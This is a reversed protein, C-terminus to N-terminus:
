AIKSIREWEARYKPDLIIEGKSFPVSLLNDKQYGAQIIMKKVVESKTVYTLGNRYVFCFIGNKENYKGIKELDSSNDTLVPPLSYEKLHYEVHVNHNPMVFCSFIFTPDIEQIGKSDSYKLCKHYFSSVRSIKANECLVTWHDYEQEPYHVGDFPCTYYGDHFGNEELTKIVGDIKPICYIKRDIVFTVINGNISYTFDKMEDTDFAPLKTVNKTSKNKVKLRGTVIIAEHKLVRLAKENEKKRM